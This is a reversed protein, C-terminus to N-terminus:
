RFLFSFFFARRGVGFREKGIRDSGNRERKVWFLVIFDILGLFVESGMGM